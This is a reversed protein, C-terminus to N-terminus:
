MSPGFTFLRIFIALFVFGTVVLSIFSVKAFKAMGDYLSLPFTLLVTTLAIIMERRAWVSEPDLDAYYVVVKTITDGVLVNYSVMAAILWVSILM